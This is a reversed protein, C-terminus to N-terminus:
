YNKYLKCIIVQFRNITQNIKFVWMIQNITKKLKNHNNNLLLVIRQSVIIIIKPKIKNSCSNIQSNNNNNNNLIKLKNKHRNNSWLQIKKFSKKKIKIRM